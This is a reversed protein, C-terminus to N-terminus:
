GDANALNGLFEVMQRASPNRISHYSPNFEDQTAGSPLLPIHDMSAAICNGTHWIPACDSLGDVNFVVNMTTTRVKM